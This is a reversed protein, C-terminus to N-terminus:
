RIRRSSAPHPSNCSTRCMERLISHTPTRLIGSPMIYLPIVLAFISILLRPPENHIILRLLLIVLTCLCNKTKVFLFSRCCSLKIM